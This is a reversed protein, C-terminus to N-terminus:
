WKFYSNYIGGEMEFSELGFRATAMGGDDGSATGYAVFTDIAADYYPYGVVISIIKVDDPIGFWERYFEETYMSKYFRLQKLTVKKKPNARGLIGQKTVSKIGTAKAIIGATYGYTAIKSPYVNGKSDPKIIGAKLAKAVTKYSSSSKKVDKIAKMEQSSAEETAGMSKVAQSMIQVRTAYGTKASAQVPYLVATLVIAVTLLVSVKQKMKKCM